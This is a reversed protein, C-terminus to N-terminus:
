RNDSHNFSTWCLGSAETNIEPLLQAFSGQVAMLGYIGNLALQASQESSYIVNETTTYKPEEDLCSGLFLLSSLLYLINIKRKM